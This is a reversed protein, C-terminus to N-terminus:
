TEGNTLNQQDDAVPTDVPIKDMMLYASVMCDGLMRIQDAAAIKWRRPGYVDELAKDFLTHIRQDDPM